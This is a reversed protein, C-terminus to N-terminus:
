LIHLHKTDHNKQMILCRVERPIVDYTFRQVACPKNFHVIITLTFRAFHPSISLVQGFDDDHGKLFITKKKFSLIKFHGTLNSRM